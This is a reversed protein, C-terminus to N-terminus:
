LLLQWYGVDIWRNQKWGVQHFHAVKQFGFKESLAISAPNPLAIGGMVCHVGRARLEDLLAAYLRSGVGAGIRQPHLYISSEVSFRYASRERWPSAYAYGLVQDNVEAVLWPLGAQQIKAIRQRITAFDVPSEEFTTMTELIFHNYVDCIASIDSEQVSRIM